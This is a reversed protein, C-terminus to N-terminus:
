TILALVITPMFQVRLRRQSAYCFVDFHKEYYRNSFNILKSLFRCGYGWALLLPWSNANCLVATFHLDCLLLIWLLQGVWQKFRRGWTSTLSLNWVSCRTPYLCVSSLGIAPRLCATFALAEKNVVFGATARGHPVHEWSAVECQSQVSLQRCPGRIRRITIYTVVDAVQVACRVCHVHLNLCMKSLIAYYFMVHLEPTQHENHVMKSKIGMCWSVHCPTVFLHGTDTNDAM